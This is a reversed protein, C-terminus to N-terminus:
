VEASQVFGGHSRTFQAELIELLPGEFFFGHLPGILDDKQRPTTLPWFDRLIRPDYYRFYLRQDTTDEAVILFRRLHTRVEKFPRDSTLYIGWARGWGEEVLAQLLGSDADFRVLYPAVDDLARGKIGNYLSCHEDVSERLLTLVRDDRAADFVGYLNRETSLATLAQKVLVVEEPTRQPKRRPPSLAEQHLSFLTQGAQLISGHRPWGHTVKTGDLLTGGGLDRLECRLGDWDIEFHIWELKPDNTLRVDADDAKGVRLVSGPTLVFKRFADRGSLVTLIARRARTM